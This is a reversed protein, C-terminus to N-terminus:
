RTRKSDAWDLFIGLIEGLNEAGGHGYFVSKEVKCYGWDTKSREISIERFAVTEVDTDVLEIRLL